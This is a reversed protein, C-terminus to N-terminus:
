SNLGFNASGYETFSALSRSFFVTLYKIFLEVEVFENDVGVGVDVVNLVLLRM